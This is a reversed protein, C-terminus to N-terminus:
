GRANETNAENNNEQQISQLAEKLSNANIEATETKDFLKEYKIVFPQTFLKALILGLIAFGLIFKMDKIYVDLCILIAEFIVMGTLGNLAKTKKLLIIVLTTIVLLFGIINSFTSKTTTAFYHERKVILYILLPLFALIKDLIVFLYYRAKYNKKKEM